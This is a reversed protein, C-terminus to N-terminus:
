PFHKARATHSLNDHDGLVAAVAEQPDIEPWRPVGLRWRQCRDAERNTDNRWVFKVPERRELGGSV